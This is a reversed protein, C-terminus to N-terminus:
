IYFYIFIVICILKFSSLINYSIQHPESIKTEDIKKYFLSVEDDIRFFDRREKMKAGDEKSM